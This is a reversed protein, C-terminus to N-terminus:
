MLFYIIKKIKHVIEILRIHKCQMVLFHILMSLSVDLYHCFGNTETMIGSYVSSCHICSATVLM